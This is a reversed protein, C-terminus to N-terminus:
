NFLIRLQGRVSYINKDKGDRPQLQEKRTHSEAESRGQTTMSIYGTGFDIVDMNLCSVRSEGGNGVLCSEM